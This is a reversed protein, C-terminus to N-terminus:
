CLVCVYVFICIKHITLPISEISHFPVILSCVFWYRFFFLFCLMVTHPLFPPVAIFTPSQSGDSFGSRGEKEAKEEEM